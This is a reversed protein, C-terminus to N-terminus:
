QELVQEVAPIAQALKSTQVSLKAVRETVGEWYPYHRTDAPKEVEEPKDPQGSEARTETKKKVWVKTKPILACDKQLPKIKQLERTVQASQEKLKQWHKERKHDSIIAEQNSVLQARTIAAMTVEPTVLNVRPAKEPLGEPCDRAMHGEKRCQWCIIIRPPRNQQYIRQPRYNDQGVPTALRVVPALRKIECEEWEHGRRKCYNCKVCDPTSHDSVRCYVCWVKGRKPM